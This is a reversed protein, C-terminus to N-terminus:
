SARTDATKAEEPTEVKREFTHKLQPLSASLVNFERKPVSITNMAETCRISANRTTKHLLAMEGFFEGSGLQALV